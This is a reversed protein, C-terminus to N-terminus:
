SEPLKYNLIFLLGITNDFIVAQYHKIDKNRITLQKSMTLGDYIVIKKKKKNRIMLLDNNINHHMFIDYCGIIIITEIQFFNVNYIVLEDARSHLAITGNSFEKLKNTLYYYRRKPDEFSHVIKKTNPDFFDIRSNKYNIDSFIMFLNNKIQLFVELNKFDYNFKLIQNFPEKAETIILCNSSITALKNDNTILIDRIYDEHGIYYKKYNYKWDNYKCLYLYNEYGICVLTNDGLEIIKSSEEISKITIANNDYYYKNTLKPYAYNNMFIGNQKKSPIIGRGDFIRYTNTTFTESSYEKSVVIRKTSLFTLFSDISSTTDKQYNYNFKPYHFNSLNNISSLTNTSNTKNYSDILSDILGFMTRHYLLSKNYYEEIQQIKRKLLQIYNSKNETYYIIFHAKATSLETQIQKINRLQEEKNYFGTKPGIHAKNCKDCYFNENSLDCNTYIKKSSITRQM